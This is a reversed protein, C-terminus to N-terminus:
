RHDRLASILASQNISLFRSDITSYLYGVSIIFLGHLFKVVTLNAHKLFFYFFV